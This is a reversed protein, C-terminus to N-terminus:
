HIFFLVCTIWGEEGEKPLMLLIDTILAQFQFFNSFQKQKLTKPKNHEM